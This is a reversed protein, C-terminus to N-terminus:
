GRAAKTKRGVASNSRKKSSGAAAPPLNGSQNGDTATAKDFKDRASAPLIMRMLNILAASIAAQREPGSFTADYVEEDSVDAGAYRLARGYAMSMKAMPATGRIAYSQLEALTLVDEIQSILGMVKRAPVTYIKGCWELEVPTFIDSM